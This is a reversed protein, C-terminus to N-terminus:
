NALAEPRVLASTDTDCGFRKLFDSAAIYSGRSQTLDRLETMLKKMTEIDAASLAAGAGLPAPREWSFESYSM